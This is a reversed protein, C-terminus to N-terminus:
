LYKGIVQKIGERTVPKTIFEDCGAELAKEREEEYAYATQAVVLVNPRLLKIRKTAEFGDLVPMKLDMFVLEIFPQKKVLSVAEEGNKAYFLEHQSGKMILQLLLLNQAEDDVMLIQKRHNLGAHFKNHLEAMKKTEALELPLNLTVTTGVKPISSLHLKAGMLDAFSKAISLGLGNGRYLTSTDSEVKRFLDFVCKQDRPEIGIGTDSVTVDLHSPTIDFFLKVSGKHTFKFANDILQMIVQELKVADILVNKEGLTSKVKMEFVLADIPYNFRIKNAIGEIFVQLNTKEHAVKEIGTEIKSMLVVNNIITLLESSSKRIVRHYLQREESSIDEELMMDAFGLLGNLPTRIEHSMNKLFSSKLRDSQEAREKARLLEQNTVTLEENMVEYEENQRAIEENKEQLEREKRKRDTIDEYVSLICKEGNIEIMELSQLTIFTTGSKHYFVTEHKNVSGKELLLKLMNNRDDPNVYLNLELSTKGILEDRTYGSLTECTQNVEIFRGDSGRTLTIAFPSAFFAKHFKQESLILEERTRIQETNKWVSDMLLTLQLVDTHNYDTAKNAVVILAVIKGNSEIPLGLFKSFSLKKNTQASDFPFSGNVDNSLIEKGNKIVQDWFRNTKLDFVVPPEITAKDLAERIEWSNLVLEQKEDNYFYIFGLKSETLEVAEALAYDLFKQISTSQFQMIKIIRGLREENKAKM